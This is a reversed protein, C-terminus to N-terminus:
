GRVRRVAEGIGLGQNTLTKARARARGSLGKTAKAFATNFAKSNPIRETFFTKKKPTKGASKKKGRSVSGSM